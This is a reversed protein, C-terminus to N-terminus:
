GEKANSALLNTYLCSCQDLSPREGRMLTGLALRVAAPEIGAAIANATFSAVGLSPLRRDAAIGSLMAAKIYSAHINARTLRKGIVPRRVTCILPDTAAAHQSVRFRHHEAMVGGALEHWNLPVIRGLSPELCPPVGDRYDGVNLAAIQAPTFGGCTVLCFIAVDNRWDRRRREAGRKQLTAIAATIEARTLTKM